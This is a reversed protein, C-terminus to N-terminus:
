AISEVSPMPFPASDWHELDTSTWITSKGADDETTVVIWPRTDVDPALIRAIGGHTPPPGAVETWDQGDKSMLLRSSEAANDYVVLLRTGDAASARAGIGADGKAVVAGSTWSLGDASRWITITNPSKVAAEWGDPTAWVDESWASGDIAPAFGPARKWSTGDSTVWAAAQWNGCTTATPGYELGVLVAANGNTAGASVEGDPRATWGPCPTVKEALDAHTWTLGDSSYRAVPYGEDGTAEWGLYGGHVALLTDIRGAKLDGVKVWGLPGAAVAAPSSPLPTPPTPVASGSDTPGSASPFTIPSSSPSPSAAPACGAFMSVALIVTAVRKFADPM